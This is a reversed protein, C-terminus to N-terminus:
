GVSLCVDAPLSARRCRGINAAGGVPDGGTLRVPGGRQFYAFVFEVWPHTRDGSATGSRRLRLIAARNGVDTEIQKFVKAQGILRARPMRGELIVGVQMLRQRRQAVRRFPAEHRGVRQAHAVPPCAIAGKGAPCGRLRDVALRCPGCPQAPVCGSYVSMAYGGRLPYAMDAKKRYKAENM